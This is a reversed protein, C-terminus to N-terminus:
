TAFWAGQWPPIATAAHRERPSLISRAWAHTEPVRPPTQKLNGLQPYLPLCLRDIAMYSKNGKLRQVEPSFKIANGAM